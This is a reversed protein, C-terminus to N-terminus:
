AGGEWGCGEGVGLALGAGVIGALAVVHVHEWTDAEAADQGFGDADGVVHDVGRAFGERLGEGGLLDLAAQQVWVDGADALDADDHGALHHTGGLGVTDVPLGPQAVHAVGVQVAPDLRAHVVRVSLDAGQLALNAVQEGAQAVHSRDRVARGGLLHVALGGLQLFAGIDHDRKGPYWAPGM